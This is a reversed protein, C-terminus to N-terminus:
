QLPDIEFTTITYKNPLLKNYKYEFRYWQKTNDIKGVQEGSLEVMKDDLIIYYGQHVAHIEVDKVVGSSTVGNMLFVYISVCIFFAIVSIVNLLPNVITVKDRDQRYKIWVVFGIVAEIPILFVGINVPLCCIEHLRYSLNNLLNWQYLFLFLMFTACTSIFIISMSKNDKVSRGM